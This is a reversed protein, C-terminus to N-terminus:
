INGLHIYEGIRVQRSWAMWLLLCALNALELVTIKKRCLLSSFLAIQLHFCGLFAPFEGTADWNGQGCGVWAHSFGALSAKSLIEVEKAHLDVKVPQGGGDLRSEQLQYGFRKSLQDM